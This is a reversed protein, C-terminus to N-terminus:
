PPIPRAALAFMEGSSVPGPSKSGTCPEAGSMAPLDIAFGMPATQAPAIIEGRLRNDTLDLLGAIFLRYVAEGEAAIVERALEAGSAAVV